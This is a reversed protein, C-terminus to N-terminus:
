KKVEKRTPNLSLYDAIQMLVAPLPKTADVAVDCMSNTLAWESHHAKETDSMNPRRETQIGDTIDLYIVTWGCMRLCEVEDLYRTDANLCIPHELSRSVTQNVWYYPDAALEKSMSGYLQLAERFDDKHSDVFKVKLEIAEGPKLLAFPVINYNKKRATVYLKILAAYVPGMMSWLDDQIRAPSIGMFAAFHEFSEDQDPDIGHLCAGVVWELVEEKLRDAHNIIPWQNAAIFEAVTNKGAGARGALAVRRPSHTLINRCIDVAVQLPPNDASYFRTM